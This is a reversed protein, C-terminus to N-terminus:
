AKAGDGVKDQSISGKEEGKAERERKEERLIELRRRAELMKERRNDRARKRLYFNVVFMALLGATPGYRMVWSKGGVATARIAEVEVVHMLPQGADVGAEGGEEGAELGSGAGASTTLTLFFADKTVVALHAVGAHGRVTAPGVSSHMGGPKSSLAVSWRAVVQDGSVVTWDAVSPADFWVAIDAGGFVEHASTNGRLVGYGFGSAAPERVLVMSAEQPEQSAESLGADADGAFSLESISLSWEGELFDFLSVDSACAYGITALAALVATSSSRLM